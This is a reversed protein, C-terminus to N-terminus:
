CIKRCEALTQGNYDRCRITCTGYFFFGCSGPPREGGEAATRHMLFYADIAKQLEKASEEAAHLGERLRGAEEATLMPMICSTSIYVTGEAYDLPLSEANREKCSVTINKRDIAGNEKDRGYDGYYFVKVDYHGNSLCLTRIEASGHLKNKTEHFTCSGM